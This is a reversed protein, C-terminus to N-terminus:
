SGINLFVICSTVTPCITFTLYHKGVSLDCHFGFGISNYLVSLSNILHIISDARDVQAQAVFFLTMLIM